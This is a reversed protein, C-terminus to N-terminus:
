ILYSTLYLNKYIKSFMIKRWLLITSKLGLIVLFYSIFSLFHMKYIFLINM